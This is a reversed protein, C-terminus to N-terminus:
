VLKTPAYATSNEVFTADVFFRVKKILEKHCELYLEVVLCQQYRLDTASAFKPNLSSRL